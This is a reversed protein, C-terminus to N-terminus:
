ISHRDNAKYNSLLYKNVHCCKSVLESRPKNRLKSLVSITIDKKFDEEATGLHAKDPYGSTSVICKCILNETWHVTKKKQKM